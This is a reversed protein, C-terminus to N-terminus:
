SSYSRSGDACRMLKPHTIEELRPGQNQQGCYTDAGDSHRSQGHCSSWVRLRCAAVLVALLKGTMLRSVVDTTQRPM